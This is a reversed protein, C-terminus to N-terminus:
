DLIARETKWLGEDTQQPRAEGTRCVVEVRLRVGVERQRVTYSDGEMM